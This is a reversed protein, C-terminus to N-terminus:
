GKPNIVTYMAANGRQVLLLASRGNKELQRALDAFQGASAMKMHDMELIVDGSRLGADEAPSGPQVQSVVVGHTSKIGLEQAIDPTLTQVGFGWSSPSGAGEASALEQDHLQALTAHLILHKGNRIVELPVTKGIATEAVMEPFQHEDNVTQGNYKVIVDGRELGAKAAPTGPVVQAVLAGEPKPLKFSQALDATVKQIEVGLWGRIVRGHAKLQDMVSRALDIPIAFGIGANSGNSSYIATNIGIVRGRTNFLPGGSNGPNIAADTQIFEDYNGGLARGKASVIGTTASLSFGFPNGVALVWDGVHVRNSDGLQAYALPKPADIKILALDTKGDKGIVKATFERKDMLVVHIEAAKGVVHYNTVIYGDPSVIVGSGLGRETYRRPMSPFGPAGRLQGFPNGLWFRFGPPNNGNSGGQGESMGSFPSGSTKIVSVVSVKVVTPMIRKIVPAWSPLAVAEYPEPAGAPAPEHMSQSAINPEANALQPDSAWASQFATAHTVLLIVFALAVAGVIAIARKSM